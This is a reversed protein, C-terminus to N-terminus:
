PAGSWVAQAALSPTRKAPTGEEEVPNSDPTMARNTRIVLLRQVAIPEDARVFFRHGLTDPRDARAGIVLYENPAVTVEFALSTYTETSRQELFEWRARDASPQATLKAEGHQLLPTFLLRTRGDQTLSPQVQFTCSVDKLAVPLSQGDQHLQFQCAAIKRGLEFKKVNGARLQIHRPSPCSQESTLLALLRSPTIGGILGVRLGNADLVAKRELAVGQEDVSSWLEENLYSDGLPREILAVDMCVVDPGTPGQFPRLRDWWGTTHTTASTCGALLAILLGPLLRM